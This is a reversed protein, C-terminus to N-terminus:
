LSKVGTPVLLYVMGLWGAVRYTGWSQVTQAVVEGRAQETEIGAAEVLADRLRVADAFAEAETERIDRTQATIKTVVDNVDFSWGRPGGRLPHLDVKRDDGLETYRDDDLAHDRLCALTAAVLQEPSRM